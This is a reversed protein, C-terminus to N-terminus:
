AGLASVMRTITVMQPAGKVAFKPGDYGWWDWCGEPNDPILSAVAQPYLIVLNNTDAYTDLNALEPFEDGLLYRGGLCGHLVVVLRCPM